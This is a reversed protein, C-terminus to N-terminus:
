IANRNLLLEAERCCGAGSGDAPSLSRLAPDSGSPQVIVWNIYVPQFTAQNM